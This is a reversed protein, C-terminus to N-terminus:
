TNIFFRPEFSYKKALNNINHENDIGVGRITLSNWYFPTPDGPVQLEAGTM